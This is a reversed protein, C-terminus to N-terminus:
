RDHLRFDAAVCHDVHVSWSHTSSSELSQFTTKIHAGAKSSYFVSSRAGSNRHWKYKTRLFLCSLQTRLLHHLRAHWEPMEIQELIYWKYERGFNAIKWQCIPFHCSKLASSFIQVGECVGEGEPFGGKHLGTHTYSFKPPSLNGLGRTAALDYLRRLALRSGKWRATIKELLPM